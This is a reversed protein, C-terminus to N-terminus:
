THVGKIKRNRRLTKKVIEHLKDDPDIDSDLLKTVDNSNLKVDRRKGAVLKGPKRYGKENLIGAIANVNNLEAYLKIAEQKLNNVEYNEYAHLYEECKKILEKAEEIKM